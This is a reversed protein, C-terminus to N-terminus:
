LTWEQALAGLAERAAPWGGYLTVTVLTEQVEIRQCGIRRAAGVWRRVMEVRGIAAAMAIIALVKARLPISDREVFLYGFVWTVMQQRLEDGEPLPMDDFDGHPNGFLRQAMESAAVYLDRRTESSASKGASEGTLKRRKEFVEDMLMLSGRSVPFGGVHSVIAGLEKLQEETWGLNRCANTWTPLVGERLLVSLCSVVILGRTKLDLGDRGYFQGFIYVSSRDAYVDNGGKEGILGWKGFLPYQVEGLAEELFESSFGEKHLSRETIHPKNIFEPDFDGIYLSHVHHGQAVLETQPKEVAM